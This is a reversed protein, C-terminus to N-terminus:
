ADRTGFLGRPRFVLVLVLLLYPLVAAVQSLKIRWLAYGPSQPGLPLGLAALLDLLSRDSGVAFSDILGLALAAVFAGALSGLGGIVIVAFVLAGVAAAMSPETVRLAGSIVGALAALATGAGFVLGHVRPLPHGLAQVMQPHTLAAQIVLGTRSFKLGAWLALLVLLALGMGFARFAPFQTCLAGALQSCLAPQAGWALQLTRGGEAPLSLVTFLASQLAPPPQFDLAQRGWLLQVLEFILYSLGFTVLLEPVHGHAQVERLVLRQFLAGLAGVLLPALGLAWWFGLGQSISYGLYAGLMYFSAHAFNLVGMMSFILTLGSALMFLLLGLSLGNLLSVLVFGADM